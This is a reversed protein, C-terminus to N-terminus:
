RSGSYVEREVLAALNACDEVFVVDLGAARASEVGTSTDEFVLIRRAGLREAGLHYADPAPKPRVVDDRYVFAQFLEHIGAARLVPEVSRRKATTVLGARVGRLDRLMSITGGPIPPDDVLRAFAQHKAELYRDELDTVWAVASNLKELPERMRTYAIGRCYRCYDAWTLEIGHPELAACWSKWHLPETDAIVGDYDFLLGDYTV